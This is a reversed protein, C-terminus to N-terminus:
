KCSKEETIASFDLKTPQIKEQPIWFKFCTIQSKTNFADVEITANYKVESKLKLTEPRSACEELIRNKDDSHWGSDCFYFFLYNADRDNKPPISIATILSYNENKDLPSKFLNINKLKDFQAEAILKIDEGNPNTITLYVNRITKINAGSNYISFSLLIKDSNNGQVETAASAIAVRRPPSIILKGKNLETKYLVFFSM